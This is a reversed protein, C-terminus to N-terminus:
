LKTNQLRLFRHALEFDHVAHGEEMGDVLLLDREHRCLKFGNVVGAEEEVGHSNVHHERVTSALM